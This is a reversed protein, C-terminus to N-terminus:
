QNFLKSLDAPTAETAPPLGLSRLSRNLSTLGCDDTIVQAIFTSQQTLSEEKQKSRIYELWLKIVYYFFFPTLGSKKPWKEKAV